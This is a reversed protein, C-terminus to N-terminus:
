NEPEAMLLIVGLVEQTVSTMPTCIIDCQIAKGRRNVAALRVVEKESDANLCSRIAPRLKEVPLGIDLNLFNQGLVEANRLGWLDESRHNWIQVRLDRNVVVVGGQLSTLISELFSNSQNLAESRHQLEENVTQLEENTSQLEENMTELEENTSQLEENTTELEENASQLEENTTELEENAAQLEENAMELEQKLHELGDNLRKSRTVDAFTIGVGLLTQASDSLPSIQVDLYVTKGQPSQWEIESVQVARREAYAQNICSRLEVPRYSLELDQLPRNLDQPALGFLRRAQANASFLLGTPEIVIQALPSSEFAVALLPNPPPASPSSDGLLRERHNVKPVKIFIRRKLDNPAFLHTHTLLMEAKGLFLCGADRLAFHFRALIKAQTAANFYMLTNRCVLLDIKSIPPDQILDHRGFIVLRRLDKRFRYGNEVPEFYRDLIEASIGVVQRPLYVAQRAYSLSEQDIDTAYIKVRSRFQELGIAEALAMVLTYSEEGSACGASWIRIPEQPDKNALLRPLTEGILYDWASSDRFFATVNILLTNFLHLFEDPYQELYEIYEGYTQVASEQMRKNVRRILSSRKYGSFDFGRSLRLFDILTEFQTEPQTEPQIEFQPDSDSPAM